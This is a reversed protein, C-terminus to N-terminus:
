LGERSECLGSCEVAPPVLMVPSTRNERRDLWGGKTGLSNSNLRINRLFIDRPNM